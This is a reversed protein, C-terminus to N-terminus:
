YEPDLWPSGAAYNYTVPGTLFARTLAALLYVDCCVPCRATLFGRNGCLMTNDTGMRLILAGSYRPCWQPLTVLFQM